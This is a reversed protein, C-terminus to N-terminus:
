DSFDTDIIEFPQEDTEPDWATEIASDYQTLNISVNAFDDQWGASLVRYRGNIQPFLESWVQVIAGAEVGDGAPLALCDPTLATSLTKGLRSEDMFSKALRQARRHDGTFPLEVTQELLEGDAAQLAVSDRMPGDITQYERDPAVFRVRVRNAMEKKPAADRYEFGGVMLRDTITMVPERPKASSIWVRGESQAVFARNASLMASMISLRDQDKTIMGDITYRKQFGGGKLGIVQEDYTAADAIEDWRMRSPLVRAGYPQILFDSQVLAATNSWKWTATAEAVEATDRPDSFMRQTPDRPDYVTAGKVVMLFNPIQVNGWLAQYQDFDAGYNCKFVATAIGRQRFTSPVTSGFDAALIPDVAQGPSGKRFSGYLHITTGSNFPTTSAATGNFSVYTEGCYVGTFESVERASVLLGLYLFPPKVELFFVAGGVRTTGYIVRQAPVSQRISGRVDPSNNATTDAQNRKMLLSNVAFSAGGSLATLLLAPGIAALAQPM